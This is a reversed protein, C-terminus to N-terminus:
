HELLFFARGNGKMREKEPITRYFRQYLGELFKFRRKETETCLKEVLGFCESEPKYDRDFDTLYLEGLLGGSM